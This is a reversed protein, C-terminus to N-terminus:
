SSVMDRTDCSRRNVKFCYMLRRWETRNNVITNKCGKQCQHGKGGRSPQCQQCQQVLTLQGYSETEKWGDVHEIGGSSCFRRGM